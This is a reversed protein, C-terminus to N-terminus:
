YHVLYGGDVPISAGTIFDSASSALFVAVGEFDAPQGWRGAPTRPVVQAFTHPAQRLGERVLDTEIYGPLIANVQINDKAWGVALSRVMQVLGGKSAAYAMSYPNGFVAAMSGTAMIKGGGRRQMAPFVAQACFFASTLNTDIVTHWDVASVAEPPKRINTGANAALINIHGFRQEIAAFASVIAPQDTVDVAYSDSDVGFGKIEAVAAVNKEANRGIIVVAAGAKALGRAMGLGIGSNGGTVVAVRSTLDFLPMM